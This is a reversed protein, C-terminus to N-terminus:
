WKGEGPKVAPSTGSVSGVAFPHICSGCVCRQRDAPPPTNTIRCLGPGGPQYMSCRTPVLCLVLSQLHLRKQLLKDPCSRNVLGPLSAQRFLFGVASFSFSVLLSMRLHSSRLATTRTLQSRTCDASDTPCCPWCVARPLSRPTCACRTCWGTKHVLRATVVWLLCSCLAATLKPGETCGLPTCVWRM